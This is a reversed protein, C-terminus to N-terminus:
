RLWLMWADAIEPKLCVGRGVEGGFFDCKGSEEVGSAGVHPGREELARRRFPKWVWGGMVRSGEFGVARDPKLIGSSIRGPGAEADVEAASECSLKERGSEGVEGDRGREWELEEREETSEIAERRRVCCSFAASRM